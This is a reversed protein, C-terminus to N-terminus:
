LALLRPHIILAAADPSCDVLGGDPKLLSELYNHQGDLNHKVQFHNANQMYRYPLGMLFSVYQDSQIVVAVKIM